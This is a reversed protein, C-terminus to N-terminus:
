KFVTQFSNTISDLPTLVPAIKTGPGVKGVGKALIVVGEKLGSEVIYLKGTTDTIEIPTAVLEDNEVTYVFKKGQKEFTSEAPIVLSNKYTKPIGITGSSGNRLFGVENSFKARFTVTGTQKNIDGTITEVTGEQEYIKGNALELNVKPLAKIKEEITNGEANAIFGLFDKENMSFYAYVNKISSVNTLPLTNQSSVLAGERYNISGVVGNVPSKVNAYNITAIISNYVSKAQELQAKATELQISSIINKQVLPVLKTVALQATNVNAKAAAADQSLSQTELKFLIQGQKVIDGEDVLVSQIYGTVKPRVESNVEGEITAPYKQFSVAEQQVVKVVPFPLVMSKPAAQKTNESGYSSVSIVIGLIIVVAPILYYIVKNKM